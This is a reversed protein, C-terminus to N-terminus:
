RVDRGIRFDPFNKLDPSVPFQINEKGSALSKFISFFDLFLKQFFFDFFNEIKKKM